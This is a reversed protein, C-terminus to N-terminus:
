LDTWEVRKDKRFWTLQRKIYHRTNLKMLYKARALDWEGRLVGSVEPIGILRATTATLRKGLLMTVEDVLGRAFMEDIRAEARAYLVDRPRVLGAISIQYKGWLGDRRHQQESIRMGTTTVVELARIIRVPDNPDIKAAADPDLSSLEEHLGALGESKVRAELALRLRLDAAGGEFLGDLIAMMYMGAGGCVVPKRGRRLIDEIAAVALVRYRAANFEDEVSVVDILHHAAAARMVAPPKDSVINAERYVQMADCSVIEGNCQRAVEVAVASKGVATPGVIFLIESQSSVSLLHSVVSANPM